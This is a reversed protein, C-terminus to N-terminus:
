LALEKLQYLLQSVPSSLGGPKEARSTKYWVRPMTEMLVQPPWFDITLLLPQIELSFHSFQHTITPLKKQDKIVCQFNKRCFENINENLDCEPFSWLGGWIGISPRKELLIEGQQNKLILFYVQKQPRNQKPKKSPLQAVLNLEYAKCNTKLPCSICNPKSRTCLTAGLDMMAQNYEKINKQPTYQEAIKWLQNQIKLDSPWGEVAHFRILVRKVNGDLITASINKSFSLIAGATSRGIGPLQSLEDVTKPFAGRYKEKIIKATKHLNRARAYYGLGSWHMLVDDEKATSLSTLSPFRKMFKQYYAIVTTVQTQQLMVESIWVRYSTPNKQWPLDHRGHEQYWKLLAQSFKTENM